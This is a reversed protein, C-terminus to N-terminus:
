LDLIELIRNLDDTSVFPIKIEGKSGDSRIQIRSGFHSSLKQQLQRMSADNPKSPQTKPQDDIEGTSLTRVLAEVKRVSLGDKVIQRYLNLQTDINDINILPCLHKTAIGIFMPNNFSSPHWRIDDKNITLIKEVVDCALAYYGGEMVVVHNIHQSGPQTSQEAGADASILNFLDIVALSEGRLNVVGKLVASGLPIRTIKKNLHEIYLVSLAPLLLKMGAVKILLCEFRQEAWKPLTTEEIPKVSVPAIEVIQESATDQALDQELFDQLHETELLTTSTTETEDRIFLNEIYHSLELGSDNLTPQQRKNM